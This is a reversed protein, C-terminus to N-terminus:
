FAAVGNSCFNRLIKRLAAVPDALYLLVFRGVVADFMCDLELERIDAAIFTIQALGALEARQHATEVIKQNNDVGVVRGTPGVLEAALLSVDGSGCGLDLVTMGACLGADEFLLRTSRKFLDGQQALRAEESESRGLVYIPDSAEERIM